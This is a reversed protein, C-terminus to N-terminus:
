HTVTECDSSVPDGADTKAKDATGPRTTGGGDCDVVADVVGDKANLMDNGGLGFLSDSGLGGTITNHADDGSLTDDGKGGTLNEVDTQITDANADLAGGSDALGDIAATVPQSATRTAYTVTETGAGGSMVDAGAGGNLTDNGGAGLLTDDGSGGTITDNGATGCIVAGGDPGTVKLKQGPVDPTMRVTCGDDNATVLADFYTLGGRDIAHVAIINTGVRLASDPVSFTPVGLQACTEHQFVGGSVEVGNVWVEADNDLTLAIQLGTAGPGLTFQKRLLLDTNADWNTAPVPNSDCSANGFAATGIAFKSDNFSFTSFKTPVAGSAVQEYRWGAAGSPIVVESIASAAAPAALAETVAVLLALRWRVNRRPRRSHVCKRAGTASM